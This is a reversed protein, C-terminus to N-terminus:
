GRYVSQGRSKRRLYPVSEGALASKEVTVDSKRFSPLGLDSAAVAVAQDIPLKAAQNASTEPKGAIEGAAGKLAPGSLGAVTLSLCLVPFVRREHRRLTSIM